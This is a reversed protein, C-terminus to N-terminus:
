PEPPPPTEGPFLTPGGNAVDEGPEAAGAAPTGAQAAALQNALRQNEDRVRQLEAAQERVTAALADAETEAAPPTTLPMSGPAVAAPVLAALESVIGAAALDADLKADAKARD